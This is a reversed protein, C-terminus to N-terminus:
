VAKEFVNLLFTGFYSYNLSPVVYNTVTITHQSDNLPGAFYQLGPLIKECAHPEFPGGCGLPTHHTTTVGDLTVNFAYHDNNADGFVYIATGNFTLQVSAGTANTYSTTGGSFSPSSNSEWLGTYVLRDSNDEVTTNTM